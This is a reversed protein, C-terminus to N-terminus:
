FSGPAPPLQTGQAQGFGPTAPPAMPSPTGPYPTAAPPAMPSGAGPYAMPAGPAMSATADALMRMEKNTFTIREPGLEVTVSGSPSAPGIRAPPLLAVVKNPKSNWMSRGLVALGQDTIAVARPPRTQHFVYLALLAGPILVYGLMLAVIFAVAFIVGGIIAENTVRAHARGVVYGRLATGPPLLGIAQQAHKKRTGTSLAM